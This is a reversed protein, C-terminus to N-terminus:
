DKLKVQLPLPYPPQAPKPLSLTSIRPRACLLRGSPARHTAVRVPASTSPPQRLASPHLHRGPPGPSPWFASHTPPQRSYFYFIISPRTTTQALLPLHIPIQNSSKFCPNQFEVFLLNSNWKPTQVQPFSNQYGKSSQLQVQSLFLIICAICGLL